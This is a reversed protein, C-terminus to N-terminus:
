LGCYAALTGAEPTYTSMLTGAGANASTILSRGRYWQWTVDNLDEARSATRTM